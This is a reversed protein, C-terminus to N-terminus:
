ETLCPALESHSRLRILRSGLLPSFALLMGLAGIVLTAPLGIRTGLFGGLLSGVPRMGASIFRMSGNVRGLLHSPTIAQRLSVANINFVVLMVWQLLESALILPLAYRPFAVALPVTMGFVGFLVLSAILTPGTGLRNRIPSAAVSGILAGIGGMAFVLGVAGPDLGLTRTLYLVYVALFTFGGLNVIGSALALARLVPDRWLAAIGEIIERLIGHDSTRRPAEDVRRIQVILVASVLYSLADILMANPAGLLRVLTGGFAPGIVQAASASAELRSNAEVLAEREVLDPVYALYAVDFFVTGTEVLFAIVILLQISLIGLWAALPIALLLAFRAIDAAIMLPRRPLRDVWAGAFLGFLLHPLGAAAALVGVALASADLTLAALLPLVVVSFQSGVQSVSEAAWFRAFDGNRAPGLATALRRKVRARNRSHSTDHHSAAVTSGANGGAAQGDPTSEM